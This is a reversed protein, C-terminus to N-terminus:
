LDAVRDIKRISSDDIDCAFLKALNGVRAFATPYHGQDLEFSFAEGESQFNQAITKPYFIYNFSILEIRSRLRTKLLGVPISFENDPPKDIKTGM